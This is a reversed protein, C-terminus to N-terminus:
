SCDRVKLKATKVSPEFLSVLGVIVAKNIAAPSAKNVIRNPVRLKSAFSLCWPTTVAIANSAM